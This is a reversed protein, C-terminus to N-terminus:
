VFEFEDACESWYMEHLLEQYFPCGGVCVKKQTFGGCQDYALFM